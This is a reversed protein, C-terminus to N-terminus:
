KFEKALELLKDNPTKEEKETTKEPPVSIRLFLKQNSDTLENIKSDKTASEATVAALQTKLTETEATKMAIETSIEDIIAARKEPDAEIGMKYLKKITEDM